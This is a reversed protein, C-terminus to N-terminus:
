KTKEYLPEINEDFNLNNVEWKDKAKYFTFTWKIAHKEFKYLYTHRIFSSGITETGVFEVAVDKGYKKNLTPWQRKTEELFKDIYTKDIHWTPRLADVGASLDGKILNNMVNDSLKKTDALSNDQAFLNAISFCIILILISVKSM